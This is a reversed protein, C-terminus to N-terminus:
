EMLVPRPQHFSPSSVIYEWDGMYAPTRNLGMEDMMSVDLSSASQGAKEELFAVCREEAKEAAQLLWDPMNSKEVGQRLGEIQATIMSALLYAKINTEGCEIATWMRAKAESILSFLDRRYPNPGLSDEGQLQTKLELAVYMTSIMSGIRFFGFGCTVLRTLTDQNSVPEDRLPLSTVLPSSPYTDCWLKMSSEIVVKRSFAYTAERLSPEFFPLHVCCLYYNIIFDLVRTEFSSLSPGTQMSYGRLMRCIARYSARLDADLKLADQYSEYANLDNLFKAISLRQSWTQRLARAIFTQTYEEDGKAVPDEALLQEDDFNGPPECDFDALSLLPAGGSVISAQLCLEMITNWLRRRMEAALATRNPLHSPDRHLGMYLATRLLAGASIWTSDGGVNICERAIMLLVRSQLSQINLRPKFDPDSLWTHAEYVWRVASPRMSFYDDYTIAGLALVLKLQVTFAINPKADTVWLADYETKFTPIHLIRFTTEITRLYCDVLEDAVGKPPLDSTPPTPWQPTRQAKIMRALEKCKKLGTIARSDEKRIHPEIM